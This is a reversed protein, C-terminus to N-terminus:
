NFTCAATRMFAVVDGVNGNIVTTNGIEMGLFENLTFRLPSSIISM